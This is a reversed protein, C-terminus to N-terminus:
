RAQSGTPSHSDVPPEEDLGQVISITSWTDMDSAYLDSAYGEVM